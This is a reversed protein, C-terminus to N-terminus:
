PILTVRGLAQRSEIFAHAAAAEALPFQKDLVVKLDGADIDLILQKIMSQVRDTRIEAGLFVGNVSQNGGMLGALDYKIVERGAGGVTSLRGRYALSYISKQMTPGGVPDVHRVVYIVEQGIADFPLSLATFALTAFFGLM